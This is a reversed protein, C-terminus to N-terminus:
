VNADQSVPGYEAGNIRNQTFGLIGDVILAILLLIETAIVWEEWQGSDIEDTKYCISGVMLTIVIIFCSIVRFLYQCRRPGSTLFKIIHRIYLLHALALLGTNVTYIIIATQTNNNFACLVAFISLVSWVYWYLGSETVNEVHGTICWVFAAIVTFIMVLLNLHWDNINGTTRLLIGALTLFCWGSFLLLSKTEKAAHAILGTLTLLIAFLGGLPIARYIPEANVYTLITYTFIMSWLLVSWAIIQCRFM